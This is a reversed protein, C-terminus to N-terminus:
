INMEMLYNVPDVQFNEQQFGHRIYFRYASENDCAVELRIKGMGQERCHRIIKDLLFSGIDKGQEERDVVIMSLFATKTIEDNCYFAVIGIPIGGRTVFYVVANQSYKKALALINEPTNLAQNHLDRALSNLAAFIDKTGQLQVIKLTEM